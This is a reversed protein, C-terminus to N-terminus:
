PSQTQDTVWPISSCVNSKSSDTASYGCASSAAKISRVAQNSRVDTREIMLQRFGKAIGIMKAAYAENTEEDYYRVRRMVRENSLSKRLSKRDFGVCYGERAYGRWQSLQAVTTNFLGSWGAAASQTSTVFYQVRM